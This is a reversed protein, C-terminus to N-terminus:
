IHILSLDLNVGLMYQTFNSMYKVDIDSLGVDTGTHFLGNLAEVKEAYATLVEAKNLGEKWIIVGRDRICM